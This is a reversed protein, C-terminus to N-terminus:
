HTKHVRGGWLITLNNNAKVSSFILKVRERGRLLLIHLLGRAELEGGDVDRGHLLDQGFGFGVQVRCGSGQVRFGAGHVRCQLDQVRFGFRHV